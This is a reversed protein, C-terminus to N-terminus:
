DNWFGNKNNFDSDEDWEDRKHGAIYDGSLLKRMGSFGWSFMIVSLALGFINKVLHGKM